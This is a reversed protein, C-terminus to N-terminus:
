RWCSNESKKLSKGNASFTLLIFKVNKAIIAAALRNEPPFRPKRPSGPPRIRGNEARKPASGARKQRFDARTERSGRRELATRAPGEVSNCRIYIHTHVPNSASTGPPHAQRIHRVPRQWARRRRVHNGLYRRGSAKCSVLNAPKTFLLFASPM